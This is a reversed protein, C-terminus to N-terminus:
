IGRLSSWLILPCYDWDIGVSYQIIYYGAFKFVDPSLCLPRLPSLISLEVTIVQQCYPPLELQIGKYARESSYSWHHSGLWIYTHIDTAYQFTSLAVQHICHCSIAVIILGLLECSHMHSTCVQFFHEFCGAYYPPQFSAMWAYYCLTSYRTKLKRLM